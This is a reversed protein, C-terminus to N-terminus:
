SNPSVSPQLALAARMTGEAEVLHDRMAQRAGEPDGQRVQELIAGHYHQTRGSAGPVDFSMRRVPTLVNALSDLLLSFLVNQTARALLAHFAMDNAVWGERDNGVAATEAVNADMAAIDADTRREAALAAIEVELMRRVELIKKLDLGPHGVRLFLAMSEAVDGASPNRVVTGSGARVELLGQATLTRVAERVVTRSVGFQRALEREPPLRDGPRLHGTVIYQKVQETVRAALTADRELTEFLEGAPHAPISGTM